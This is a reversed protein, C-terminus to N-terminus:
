KERNYSFFYSFISMIIVISGPYMSEQTLSKCFDRINSLGLQRKSRKHNKMNGIYWDLYIMHIEFHCKIKYGQIFCVCNPDYM